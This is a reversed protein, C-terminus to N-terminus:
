RRKIPGSLDAVDRKLLGSRGSIGSPVGGVSPLTYAEETLKNYLQTIVGDMFQVQYTDTEVFVNNDVVKVEASQVVQSCFLCLIGSLVAIGLRRM